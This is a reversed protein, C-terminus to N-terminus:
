RARKRLAIPRAFANTVGHGTSALVKAYYTQAEAAQGSRELAQALLSLIFPDEQDAQKLDAIAKADNGAHFAIYGTLYPLQIRQDANGGKDLLGQVRAVHPQAERANGRRIAVRAQAHAWRMEALDAERPALKPQRLATQYGSRYWTLAGSADGLELLVRGLENAVEAAGVFDGAGVRREFVRTFYPTAERANGSFTWSVGMM